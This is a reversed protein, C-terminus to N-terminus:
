DDLKSIDISWTRGDRTMIRGNGIRLGYLGDGIAVPVAGRLEGLTAPRGGIIPTRGGAAKLWAVPPAKGLIKAFQDKAMGPPVIVPAGNIQAVGGHGTGDGGAARDIARTWREDNIETQDTEGDRLSEAAYIARANSYIASGLAPSTAFMPLVKQWAVQADAKVATTWVGPAAKIAKEGALVDAMAARGASGSAALDAGHIFAPDTPAIQRAASGADDGFLRLHDLVAAKGGEKRYVDQMQTIEDPLLPKVDVQGYRKAAARASTLRADITAPDNWDIPAPALAGTSFSNALLPSQAILGTVTKRVDLLGRRLSAQQATLGGDAAEVGNLKAIEIDLQAPTAGRYGIAASRDGADTRVEVGKSTDGIQEYGAAIQLGRQPDGTGAKWQAYQTDLEERKAAKAQAAAARAEAEGRREVVDAHSRLADIQAPQLIKDYRGSDLIQKARGPNREAQGMLFSGVIAGAAEQTAAEKLDEAGPQAEIMDAIDSLEGLVDDERDLRGVRNAALSVADKNDANRKRTQAGVQYAHARAEVSARYDKWSEKARPLLRPDTIGAFIQKEEADLASRINDSYGEGGAPLNAQLDTELDDMRLKTGAYRVGFDSAEDAHRQAKERREREQLVGGLQEVDAGVAGAAGISVGGIDVAGGPQVRREYGEGAM